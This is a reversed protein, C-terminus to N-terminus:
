CTAAPKRTSPSLKLHRNATLVEYASKEMHQAGMEVATVAPKPQPAPSSAKAPPDTKAQPSTKSPNMKRGLPVSPATATPKRMHAEEVATVAPKPQPAPPSAKSPKLKRGRTAPPATTSPNRM